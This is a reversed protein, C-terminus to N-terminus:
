AVGLPVTRVSEEDSQNSRLNRYNLVFMGTYEEAGTEISLIEVDRNKVLTALAEEVLFKMAAKTTDDIKQITRLRNGASGLATGSEFAARIATVVQDDIVDRGSTISVLEGKNDTNDALFASPLGLPDFTLPYFASAPSIGAAPIINPIPV